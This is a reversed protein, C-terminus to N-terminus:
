QITAQVVPSNDDKDLVTGSVSVRQNQAFSIATSLGILLALFLYKKM